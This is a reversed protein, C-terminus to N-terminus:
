SVKAVEEIAQKNMDAGVTLAKQLMEFQRMVSVLRVASDAVPVNSQELTGQRVETDAAAQTKAGQTVAFYSNGLKSLLQSPSDIGAIEIQAVEQGGQSILGSKSVEIPKAPDITIPNGNDRSNRLTYGDSTQLQNAKSIQFQGNRTYVTGASSNLAFFGKGSLGLDLPDGTPVLAGQSFDTWQKELVPLQESYLGYFERDSKFGSTGTNALNNALVDLSEM